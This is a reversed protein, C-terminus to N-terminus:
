KFPRLAIDVMQFAVVTDAQIHGIQTQLVTIIFAVQMRQAFQMVSQNDFDVVWLTTLQEPNLAIMKGTM